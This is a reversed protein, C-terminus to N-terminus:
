DEDHRNRGHQRQLWNDDSQQYQQKVVRQDHQEGAADKDRDLSDAFKRAEVLRAWVADRAESLERLTEQAALLLQQVQLMYAHANRQAGIDLLAQAQRQGVVRARAEALSAVLQNTEKQQKGLAANQTALELAIEDIEWATMSRVPELAYTFGRRDRSM